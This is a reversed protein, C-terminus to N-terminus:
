VVHEDADRFVRCQALSPASSKLWKKGLKRWEWLKCKAWKKGKMDAM